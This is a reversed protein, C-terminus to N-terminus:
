DREVARNGRLRAMLRDAQGKVTRRSRIGSLEKLHGTDAFFRNALAERVASHSGGLAQELQAEPYGALARTLMRVHVRYALPELHLRGAEMAQLKEALHAIFLHKSSLDAPVTKRSRM